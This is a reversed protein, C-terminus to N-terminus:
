RILSVRPCGSALGALIERRTLALNAVSGVTSAGRGNVLRLLLTNATAAEIVAAATIPHIFTCVVSRGGTLRAALSVGGWDVGAIAKCFM